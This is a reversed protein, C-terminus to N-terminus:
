ILAQTLAQTLAHAACTRLPEPQIVAAFVFKVRELKSMDNFHLHSRSIDM